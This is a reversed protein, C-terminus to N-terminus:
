GGNGLWHCVPRTILEGHGVGLLVLCDGLHSLLDCSEGSGETLEVFCHALDLDDPDFVGLLWGGVGIISPGIIM